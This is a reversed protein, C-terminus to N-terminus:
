DEENDWDSISREEEEQEGGGGNRMVRMVVEKEGDQRIQQMRHHKGM